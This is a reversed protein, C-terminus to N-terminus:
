LGPNEHTGPVIFVSRRSKDPLIEALSGLLGRVPGPNDRKGVVILDADLTSAHRLIQSQRSGVVQLPTVTTYAESCEDALRQLNQRVCRQRAHEAVPDPAREGVHLIFLEEAELDRDKLYPMVRADTAQFDTAYLVRSLATSAQMLSRNYVLVPVDCLRVIDADISGMLAQVLLAKPMWYLALYDVALESAIHVTRRSPSGREAIAEVAFGLARVEDALEELLARNTELEKASGSTVHILHVVKTGFGQMLRLMDLFTARPENLSTKIAARQLM